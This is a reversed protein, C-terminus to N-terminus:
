SRSRLFTLERYAETDNPYLKCYAEAKILATSFDRKLEYAIVENFLLQQKGEEENMGLGLDVYELALDADEAALACLVLNNYASPSEGEKQLIAQFMQSAHGYDEVAIYILGMLELAPTYMEDVPEYLIDMAADYLGQYYYIKGIEYRDQSTRAPHKLAEDLYEYGVGTLNQEEYVRYVTLYMEYDEPDFAVAKDFSAKASAQDGLKLNAAGNLYYLEPLSDTELMQGCLQIVDEYAGAQYYATALYLGIDLRTKPMKEDAADLAKELAAAAAEYKDMELLAIGQGRYAQVPDEGAKVAKRFEALADFMSGDKLADAGAQIHSDGAGGGLCGGLTMCIGAALLAATLFQKIKMTHRM